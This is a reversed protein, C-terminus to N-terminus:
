IGGISPLLINQIISLYILLASCLQQLQSVQAFHNKLVMLLCHYSQNTSHILFTFHINKQVLPAESTAFVRPSQPPSKWELSLSRHLRCRFSGPHTTPSCLCEHTSKKKEERSHGTSTSKQANGLTNDRVVQNPSSIIANQTGMGGEEHNHTCLKKSSAM